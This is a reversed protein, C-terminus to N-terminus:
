PPPRSAPRGNGLWKVSEKYLEFCDTNAKKRDSDAKMKEFLANNYAVLEEDEKRRAREEQRLTLYAVSMKVKTAGRKVQAEDLGEAHLSPGGDSMSKMASYCAESYLDEAKNFKCGKTAVGFRKLFTLMDELQDDDDADLSAGDGEEDEVVAAGTSGSVKVKVKDKNKEEARMLEEDVEVVAETSGRVKNLKDMWGPLRRYAFNIKTITVKEPLSANRDM